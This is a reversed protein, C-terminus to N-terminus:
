KLLETEEETLIRNENFFIEKRKKYLKTNMEFLTLEGYAKTFAEYHLITDAIEEINKYEYIHQTLVTFGSSHDIHLTKHHRNLADFRERDTYQKLNKRMKNIKLKKLMLFYKM